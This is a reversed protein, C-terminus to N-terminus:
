RSVKRLDNMIQTKSRRFSDADKSNVNFNIITNGKNENVPALNKMQEETFVGEKKKIKAYMEESGLHFSRANALISNPVYGNFPLEYGMGGTHGIMSRSAGGTPGGGGTGGYAGAGTAADSGASGIIIGVLSKFLPNIISKQAQAIAMKNLTDMWNTLLSNTWSEWDMKGTKFWDTMKSALDDLGRSYNDIFDGSVKEMSTYHDVWEDLANKQKELSDEFKEETEEYIRAMEGAKWQEALIEDGGADKYAKVQKDLLEEQLDFYEQPYYGLDQYMRITANTIENQSQLNAQTQEETATKLKANYDALAKERLANFNEIQKKAFEPGALEAESYPEIIKAGGFGVGTVKGKKIKEDIAKNYERVADAQKDLAKIEKLTDDYEFKAQLRAADSGAAQLQTIRSLQTFIKDYNDTIDSSKQTIIEIAALGSLEKALRKASEAMRNIIPLGSLFADFLSEGNRKAELMSSGIDMFSNIAYTAFGLRFITKLKSMMNSASKEYDKLIKEREANATINIETLMSENDSWKARLDNFYRDHEYLDNALGTHTAKFFRDRLERSTKTENEIDKQIQACSKHVVKVSGDMDSSFQKLNTELNVQLTGLDM